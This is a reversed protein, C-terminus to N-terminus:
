DEAGGGLRRLVTGIVDASYGRRLLFGFWRRRSKPDSLEPGKIRRSLLEMAGAEEGQDEFIGRLAEEIWEKAIGKRVLEIRIRQPGWRHRAVRDRAWQGAFARDGLYGFGELRELVRRIEEEPVGKRRLRHELELRSRPCRALLRYAADM